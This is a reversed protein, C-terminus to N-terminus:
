FVKKLQAYSDDLFVVKAENPLTATFEEDLTFSIFYSQLIEQNYGGLLFYPVTILLLFLALLITMIKKIIRKRKDEEEFEEIKDDDHQSM